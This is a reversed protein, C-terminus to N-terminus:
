PWASTRPKPASTAVPWSSLWSEGASNIICGTVPVTASECNRFVRALLNSMERIDWPLVSLGQRSVRGRRFIACATWGDLSSIRKAFKLWPWVTARHSCTTLPAYQNVAIRMERYNWCGHQFLLHQRWLLETDQFSACEVERPSNKQFVRSKERQWPFDLLTEKRFSHSQNPVQIRIREGVM